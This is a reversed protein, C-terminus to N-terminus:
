TRVQLILVSGTGLESSDEVAVVEVPSNESAAVVVTVMMLGTLLQQLLLPDDFSVKAEGKLKGTEQTCILWPSGQKRIQKLSVLRSSHILWLSLQLMRMLGQM